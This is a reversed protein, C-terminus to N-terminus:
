SAGTKYLGLMQMSWILYIFWVLLDYFHAATFDAIWTVEDSYIISQKINTEKLNRKTVDLWTWDMVKVRM